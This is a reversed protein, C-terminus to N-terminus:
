MASLLIILAKEEEDMADSSERPAIGAMFQTFERQEARADAETIRALEEESPWEGFRILHPKTKEKRLRFRKDYSPPYIAGGAGIPTFDPPAPLDLGGAGVAIATAAGASEAATDALASGIGFAEALGTALAVADTAVIAEGVAQATALGTASMEADSIVIAQGVAQATALGAANMAADVIASGIATVTATGSSLADADAAGVETYDITLRAETLTAHELAVVRVFNDGGAGGNRFGAIALDNNSAWGGRAVIESVIAAVDIANDSDAVWSSVVKSATTKTINHIRNGPNAWAPADDVDNGHFIINPSGTVTTARLTLTASNITASAPVPVTQFRFGAQYSYNGATGTNGMLLFQFAADFNYFATGEAWGSSADDGGAAINENVTPDVFCPYDVDESWASRGERRIKARSAARGTWEVEITGDQASRREILELMRGRADRGWLPRILSLDGRVRWSWKRPSDSTNLILLTASGTPLPQIVYDTDRGVEAWKFLGGDVIPRSSTANLEVSVRKGSLSNYAYSPSSDDIQLAYPCNRLVHQSRAADFEPTLDIDHLKGDREFHCPLRGIELRRRGNGLDFTKSTRTRREKIERM